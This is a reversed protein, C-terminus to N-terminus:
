LLGHTAARLASLKRNPSMLKVNIRQFRSDIATAGIGLRRSIQKTGMGQRELALLQLDDSSLHAVELLQTRTQRTWWEHLELSLSHALLQFVHTGDSEFNGRRESALCLVGFRNLGGGSQTPVILGSRCGFDDATETGVPRLMVPLESALVPAFHDRAYLMWPAAELAEDRVCTRGWHSDGAMLVRLASHSEDEPIAHVYVGGDAGLASTARHLIDVLCFPDDARHVQDILAVARAAYGPSQILEAVPPLPAPANLSM